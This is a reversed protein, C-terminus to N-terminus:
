RGPRKKPEKIKFDTSTKQGNIIVELKFDGQILYFNENDKKKLNDVNNSKAKKLEKTYAALKDADLSLDYQMYNLGKELSKDASYLLTGKKSYVNVKAIGSDKTYVPISMEPEFYGYWKVYRVNGWRSSYTPNDVGFLHVSKALLKNDLKELEKVSARYISRGHTGIVLDGATSQVVLDHVPVHPLTKDMISFTEGRDLSVYLGHDTGVYLLNENVPDEKIVNVPEMPLNKGIQVWTSGGDDSSYVMSEFNDFRYGNLAVYVRDKKFNSAEVRSVWQDADLGSSINKWTNGGDKSVHVLGDDSGVYILGFQLPSEDISTLTGYPVNGKKGGKTLDQSTIDWEKGQDLSRHFKNSGFYVM